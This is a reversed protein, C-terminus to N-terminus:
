ALEAPHQLIIKGEGSKNYKDVFQKKLLHCRANMLLQPPSIHKNGVSGGNVSCYSDERRM